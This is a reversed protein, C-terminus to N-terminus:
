QALPLRISFVSGGSGDNIIRIYGNNAEVARRTIALGLGAGEQQTGPLRYFRDFVREQEAAPIGPGTDKVEISAERNDSTSVKVTIKGGEPTFKISNDILNLLAGSLLTPEALVIIEGKGEVDLAQRKEEALIAIINVTDRAFVLLDVRQFTLAQKGSEARSLFLLRDILKTLRESEELMSGIIERYEVSSRDGQLGIEGVTRMATLPTRLEHSVDHTFQKLKEFSQELRGLLENFASALRGLEDGPNKVPIRNSHDHSSIKRATSAMIDVPKLVRHAMLYAGVTVLILASPIILLMLNFFDRTQSFHGKENVSLRLVVPATGALSIKEAVRFTTGDPATYSTMRRGKLLGMTDPKGGLTRSGLTVSRYLLGGEISWIEMYRELDHIGEEHVNRPFSDDPLRILMQEVLELEEKLSGDLQFNLTSFFFM